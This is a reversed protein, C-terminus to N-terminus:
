ETFIRKKTSGEQAERLEECECCRVAFPLSRLRREEIGDGCEACVGYTRDELRVLAENIKALTEAKKQLLTFEIDETVDVEGPAFPEDARKGGDGNVRRSRVDRLKGQVENLLERRREQLMDKLQSCTDGESARVSGPTTM